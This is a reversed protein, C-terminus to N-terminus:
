MVQILRMEMIDQKVMLQIDMYEQYVDDEFNEDQGFFASLLPFIRKSTYKIIGTLEVYTQKNFVNKEIINDFKEVIENYDTFLLRLYKIYQDFDDHMNLFNDDIIEGSM